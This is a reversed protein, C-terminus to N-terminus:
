SAKKWVKNDILRANSWFRELKYYARENEHMIHVILNGYDLIVWQSTPQGEKSILTHNLLELKQHINNAIAEIQAASKAGIILFYDAVITLRSVDLLVIEEGKKEEAAKAAIFAYNTDQTGLKLKSKKEKKRNLRISLIFKHGEKIIM